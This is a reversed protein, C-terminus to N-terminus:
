DKTFKVGQGLNKSQGLHDQVVGKVDEVTKQVIVTKPFANDIREAHISSGAGNPVIKEGYGFVHSKPDVPWEYNRCRQAGPAINGHTKVYM